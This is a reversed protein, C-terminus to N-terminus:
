SAAGEVPKRAERQLPRPAMVQANPDNKRSSDKINEDKGEGRSKQAKDEAMNGKQQPAPNSFLPTAAIVFVLLCVTIAKLRILM